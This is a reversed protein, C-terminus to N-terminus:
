QLLHISLKERVSSNMEFRQRVLTVTYSYVVIRAAAAAAACYHRKTCQIKNANIRLHFLDNLPSFFYIKKEGERITDLAGRM